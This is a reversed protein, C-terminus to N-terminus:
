FSQSTNAFIKADELQAAQIRLLGLFMWFDALSHHKQNLNNYIKAVNKKQPHKKQHTFITPPNPSGGPLNLFVENSTKFTRSNNLSAKEFIGPM